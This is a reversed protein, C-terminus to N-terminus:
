SSSTGIAASSVIRTQSRGHKGDGFRETGTLRLCIVGFLERRGLLVIPFLAVGDKSLPLSPQGLLVAKGTTDVRLLESSETLPLIGEGALLQNPVTVTLLVRGGISGCHFGHLMPGTASRRLVSM